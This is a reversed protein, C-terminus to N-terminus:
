PSEEAVFPPRFRGSKTNALQAERIRHAGAANKGRGYQFRWLGALVPRRKGTAPNLGHEIHSEYEEYRKQDEIHPVVETWPM